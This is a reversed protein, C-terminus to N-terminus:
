ARSQSDGIASQADSSRPSTPTAAGLFSVQVEVPPEYHHWLWDDVVDDDMFKGVQFLHIVCPSEPLQYGFMTGSPALVFSPELVM